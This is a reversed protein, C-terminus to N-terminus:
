KKTREYAVGQETVREEKLGDVLFCNDPVEDLIVYETNQPAFMKFVYYDKYIGLLILDNDNKIVDVPIDGQDMIYGGVYWYANIFCVKFSKMKAKFADTGYFYGHAADTLHIDNPYKPKPFGESKRRLFDKERFSDFATGRPLPWNKDMYLVFFSWVDVGYKETISTVMRTYPHVFGMFTGGVGPKVKEFPVTAAPFYLQGPITVLGKMRDFIFQRKPYFIGFVFAISAPVFGFFVAGDGAEFYGKVFIFNYLFPISVLTFFGGLFLPYKRDGYKIIIFEDDVRLYAGNKKSKPNVVDKDLSMPWPYIRHEILARDSLVRSFGHAIFFGTLGFAFFCAAMIFASLLGQIGWFLKDEYTNSLIYGGYIIGIALTAGVAFILIALIIKKIKQNTRVM